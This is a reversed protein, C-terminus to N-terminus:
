DTCADTKILVHSVLGLPRHEVRPSALLRTATLSNGVIDAHMKVMVTYEAKSYQQGKNKRGALGLPSHVARYKNNSATAGLTQQPAPWLAFLPSRLLWLSTTM